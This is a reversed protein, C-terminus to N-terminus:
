WVLLVLEACFGPGMAMLVGIDGPVARHQTKGLVHLVSASSLNGVSALSERTIALANEPLELSEEIANIVKPGGPHCIWHRVDSRTLRNDELFADVEAPLHRKVIEPVDASLVVKFGSAGVDWGMVRETDPFFASRTDVVRARTRSRISPPGSSARTGGRSSRPAIAESGTLVLAAAADGFLGSAVVNAISFDDQLTLSCLEVSLLVAVHDPHGRLYDNTRALGAAGGVCGLGFMPTRRIDRRLGLVNVLRADITPVALGTVTTYFIADVDGLDLGAREVAASVARAALETGVRIFADNAAGFDSLQDYEELPLALCRREVQVASHLRDVLNMVKPRDKWRRKLTEMMANQDYEHDPLAVEVQGVSPARADAGLRDSWSPSRGVEKSGLFRPHGAHRGEGTPETRNPARTRAIPFRAQTM